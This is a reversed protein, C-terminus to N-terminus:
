GQWWTGWDYFGVFLPRFGRKRANQPQQGPVRLSLFIQNGAWRASNIRALATWATSNMLNLNKEYAYEAEFSLDSLRPIPATYARANFVNM